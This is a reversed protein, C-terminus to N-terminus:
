NSLAAKRGQEIAEMNIPILKAKKAFETKVAERFTEFDVIKSRAVFASLAVINACRINGLEKAIEIVPVVLEDVDDRGAGASILSGNILVVGDTKVVPSFKGSFAM